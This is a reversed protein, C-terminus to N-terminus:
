PHDDELKFMTETAGDAHLAHIGAPRRRQRQRLLDLALEVARCHPIHRGICTNARIGAGVVTKNQDHPVIVETTALSSNGAVDSCTVEITYIRDDGKGCRESRLDVTLDGTVLSDPQKNGSGCGTEPENSEVGTIKCIPLDADCSDATSVSVTVVKMKHNPPWLTEPSAEIGTVAPNTTDVVSVSRTLTDAQNGYTDVADFTIVYTGPTAPDVEDGGISVQVDVDCNDQSSAGPETYSEM